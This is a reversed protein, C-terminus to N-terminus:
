EANIATVEVCHGGNETTRSSTRWRAVKPPASRSAEMLDYIDVLVDAPLKLAREIAIVMQRSPRERGVEIGSITRNSCPIM